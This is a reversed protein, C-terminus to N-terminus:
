GKLLNRCYAAEHWVNIEVDIGNAVIYGEMQRGLDALEAFNYNPVFKREVSDFIIDKMVRIADDVDFPM